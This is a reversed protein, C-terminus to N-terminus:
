NAGGGGATPGERLRPESKTDPTNYQIGSVWLSIEVKGGVKASKAMSWGM